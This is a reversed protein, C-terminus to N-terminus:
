ALRAFIWQQMARAPTDCAACTLTVFAHVDLLMVLLRASFVNHRMMLTVVLYSPVRGKAHVNTARPHLCDDLFSGYRYVTCSNSTSGVEKVRYKDILIVIYICIYMYVFAARQDIM